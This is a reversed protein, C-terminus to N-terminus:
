HTGRAVAMNRPPAVRTAARTHISKRTREKIITMRTEKNRENAISGATFQSARRPQRRPGAVSEINARISRATPPKRYAIPETSASWIVLNVASAGPYMRSISSHSSARNPITRSVSARTASNELPPLAARNAELMAPSKTDMPVAKIDSIKWVNVTRSKM